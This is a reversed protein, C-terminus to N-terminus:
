LWLRMPQQQQQKKVKEWRINEETEETGLVPSALSVLAGGPRQPCPNPSLRQSFCGVRGGLIVLSTHDCEPSTDTPSWSYSQTVCVHCLLTQRGAAKRAQTHLVMDSPVWSCLSWTLARKPFSAGLSANPGMLKEVEPLLNHNLSISESPM